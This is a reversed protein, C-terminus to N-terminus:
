FCQLNRCFSHTFHCLLFVELSEFNLPKGAQMKAVRGNYDSEVVYLCYSSPPALINLNLIIFLVVADLRCTSFMIMEVTM